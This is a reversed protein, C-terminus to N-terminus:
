AAARIANKAGRRSDREVKSVFSRRVVVIPSRLLKIVAATKNGRTTGMRHARMIWGKPFHYQEKARQQPWDQDRARQCDILTRSKLEHKLTSNSKRNLWRGRGGCAQAVWWGLVKNKTCAAELASSGKVRSPPHPSRDPLM